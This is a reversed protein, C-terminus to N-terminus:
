EAAPSTPIEGAIIAARIEELEASLESSIM